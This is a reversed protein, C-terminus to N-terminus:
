YVPPVPFLKFKLLSVTGDQIALPLTVKRNGESDTKELASVAMRLGIRAIDSMQGADALADIFRDAGQVIFVMAGEPRRQLDLAVSGDGSVRLSDKLFAIRDIDIVGSADRWRDLQVPSLGGPVPRLLLSVAAEDFRDGLPTADPTLVIENGTLALNSSNAPRDESQGSNRRLHFQLRAAQRLPSNGDAIVDRLDAAITDLQGAADFRVSVRMDTSQVVSAMRADAPGWALSQPGIPQLIAHSFNWPQFFIDLRDAAWDPAMPRQPSALRPADISVRLRYPFGTVAVTGHEVDMGEARREAVWREVGAKLGDALHNWYFWYGVGALLVVLLVIPGFWRRLLIGM